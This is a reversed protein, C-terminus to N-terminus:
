LETSKCLKRSHRQKTEHEQTIYYHLLTTYQTNCEQTTNHPPQLRTCHLTSTNNDRTTYHLTTSPLPNKRVITKIYVRM